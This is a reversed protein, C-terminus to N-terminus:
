KKGSATLRNEPTSKVAQDGTTEIMSYGKSEGYAVHVLLYVVRFTLNGIGIVAFLHLKEYDSM